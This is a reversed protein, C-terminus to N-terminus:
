QRASRIDHWVEQIRSWWPRSRSQDHTKTFVPLSMTIRTGQGPFSDIQLQAGCLRARERISRLGLRRGIEPADIQAFAISIGNDSLTVCLEDSRIVVDLRIEEACAHRFANMMAERTMMRLHDLSGQSVTVADLDGKSSVRFEGGMQTSLSHGLATLDALMLGLSPEQRLGLVRDRGEELLTEAREVTQQLRPRQPDDPALRQVASHFVLILGQLSQLLTDHLDRAIREREQMGARLRLLEQDRRRHLWVRQLGLLLAVVTGISLGRVWGLEHWHAPVEVSLSSVDSSPVGEGNVLRLKLEHLGPGLPGLNHERASGLDRWRGDDENRSMEYRLSAAERLTEPRLSIRIDRHGIPLVVHGEQPVVRSEGWAVSTVWVKIDRRLPALQRPAIVHVADSSSLWLHGDKARVLTPLPRLQIPQGSLGDESGFWRVQLPRGLPNDFARQQLTTIRVVGTAAHIWLAGDDDTVVGSVGSLDGGQVSLPRVRGGEFAAVGREGGVWLRDGQRWLSLVAGVNLQDPGLVRTLRQDELRWLAGQGDGLWATNNEAQAMVMPYWPLGAATRKDSLSSWQGQRLSWLGSLRVSALVSGDELCMLAQVVADSPWPSRVRTESLGSGNWAVLHSQSGSWVSDTCKSSLATIHGGHNVPPAQPRTSHRLQGSADGVWVGGQPDQALSPWKWGEAIPWAKFDPERFRDLGRNSGVWVSGEQDLLMAGVYRGRLPRVSVQPHRLLAPLDLAKLETLLRKPIHAVGDNIALWLGGSADFAMEAPDLPAPPPPKATVSPGQPAPWVGSAGNNLWLQGDPTQAFYGLGSRKAMPKFAVEDIARRWLATETIIWFAGDRGLALGSAPEQPLNWAPPPPRWRDGDLWFLGAYTSVWMRGSQDRGFAVVTAMAPLGHPEEYVLVQQDRIHVVRGFRHGVWIGGDPDAWLASANGILGPAATSSAWRKFQIGDYVYLGSSSSIWLQGDPTQALGSIEGPAGEVATWMRHSTMAPGSPQAMAAEWGALALWLLGYLYRM